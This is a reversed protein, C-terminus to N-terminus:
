ETEPNQQISTESKSAESSNYFLIFILPVALVFNLHFFRFDHGTLLLMTGFNYALLPIIAFFRAIGNNGIRALALLLLIAIVAGVFNFAYKLLSGSVVARYANIRNVAESDYDGKIGVDNRTIGYGVTWGNGFDFGWVMKTLTLISKKAVEPSSNASQYAYRLVNLAGKEDIKDYITGDSWKFSNFGGFSYHKEWNEQTALSDMFEVAEESMAERDNMYVDALITMPLGVTETTRHKPSGVGALSYIPLRLILTLVIFLAFASLTKKRANKFFVFVIVLMPVTLLVANHRVATALFCFVALAALNLPKYLWKGNSVYIRILQAFCITALITFASDKWPYLMILATNPNAIIYIFAVILFPLRAGESYMVYFLYGIALALWILQFTVILAPSDSFIMPISFFLWTHLAPHWDNYENSLSQKYQEISDPSFSGPYLARLWAYFVIFAAVSVALGFVIRGKIGRAVTLHIETKAFLLSIGIVAASVLLFVPILGFDLLPSSLFLQSRIVSTIYLSVFFFALIYFRKEAKTELKMLEFFRTSYEKAKKM